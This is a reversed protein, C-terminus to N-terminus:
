NKVNVCFKFRDRNMRWKIIVAIYVLEKVSVSGKEVGYSQILAQVESNLGSRAKEMLVAKVDSLAIEKAPEETPAPEAKKTTKKKPEEATASLRDAIEDALSLVRQASQRLEKLQADLESMQSM